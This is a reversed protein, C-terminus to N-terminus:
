QGGEDVRELVRMAKGEVVRYKPKGTNCSRCECQRGDRTPFAASTQEFMSLALVQHCGTCLKRPIGEHTPELM